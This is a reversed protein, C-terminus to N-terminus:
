KKKPSRCTKCVGFIYTSYNAPIFNSYRHMRLANDVAKDNFEVVRGCRTCQFMMKSNKAVVLEYATVKSGAYQQHATLLGADLFLQLANYITARAVTLEKACLLELQNATFQAPFNCIQRLIIYREQTKRLRNAAIYEDLMSLAENYTDDKKM